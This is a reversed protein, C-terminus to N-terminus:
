TEAVIVGTSRNVYIKVDIYEIAPTPYIQINVNMITDDENDKTVSVEYRDIGEAAKVRQLFSDIDNRASSRTNVSNQMFLYPTMSNELVKEVYNLCRRINIRNLLSNKKLATKQGWLVVGYNGCDRTTNVNNDYLQGIENDTLKLLQGNTYSITGRAVGAPAMWPYAATDCYAMACAGAVSKPLYIWAALSSNYYKDYGGYEAVYSGDNFSFNKAESLMMKATKAAKSTVQVVGIDKKRSAAIQAIKIQHAKFKQRGNFTDIADVNFLIDFKARQRDAYFNLAATKESINNKTSNKGGTLGYIAFTQNPQAYKGSKTAAASVSSRSVYIYDSHGNIVIPAYLSDGEGDKAYPDTSVFWSEAPEKLLADMGSGWAAEATQTKNKLYVNIRFVKKWTLGEVNDNVKDEDDYSYKWNFAYQHNLAAIDACETTIISVGIDNGYEGPGISSIVLQDAFVSNYREIDGNGPEDEADTQITYGDAYTKDVSNVLYSTPQAVINNLYTYTGDANKRKYGTQIPLYINDPDEAIYVAAKTLTETDKENYLWFLDKEIYADSDKIGAVYCKPLEKIVKEVIADSFVDYYKIYYYKSIDSIDNCGYADLMDIIVERPTRKDIDDNGYKTEQVTSTDAYMDKVAKIFVQKITPKKTDKSDVEVDEAVVKDSTGVIAYDADINYYETFKIAVAQQANMESENVYYTKKIDPDDWDMIEMRLADTIGYGSTAITDSAIAPYNGYFNDDKFISSYRDIGETPWASVASYNAVFKINTAERDLTYLEPVGVSVNCYTGNNNTIKVLEPAASASDFASTTLLLKTELQPNEGNSDVSYPYVVHKGEAAITGSVDKITSKFVIRDSSESIIDNFDAYLAEQNLAYVKNSASTDNGVYKWDLTTLSDVDTTEKMNQLLVLNNDAQSDVYVFKQSNDSVVTNQPLADSYSYQIQAYQEDGMTARVAFLQNSNAFYNEAAFHGYDTLTEPEGFIETFENYNTTVVRQNVPGKNSKMVLAGIGLGPTSESRITNDIETMNIGPVSYKAM